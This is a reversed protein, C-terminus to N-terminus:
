IEMTDFLDLRRLLSVTNPLTPLYDEVSLFDGDEPEGYHMAVTGDSPKELMIMRTCLKPIYSGVNGPQLFTIIRMKCVNMSGGVISKSLQRASADDKVDESNPLSSLYGM